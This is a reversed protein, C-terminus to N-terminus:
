GIKRARRERRGLCERKPIIIKMANILIWIVKEM